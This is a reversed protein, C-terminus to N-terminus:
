SCSVYCSYLENTGEDDMDVTVNVPSSNYIKYALYANLAGLVVNIEGDKAPTMGRPDLAANALYGGLVILPPTGGAAAVLQAAPNNATAEFAPSGAMAAAIPVNGRFVYLLNFAIPSSGGASFGTVSTGETGTAIKFFIGSKATTTNFAQVGPSFGPPFAAAGGAVISSEGLVVLLDGAQIPASSTIAGNATNSV